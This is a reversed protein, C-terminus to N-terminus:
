AARQLLLSHATKVLVSFHQSKSIVASVGVSLALKKIFSDIYNSFIIIPLSPMSRRLIRAAEVGNLAPMSLDMIILDPHLRQAKEVAEWGNEAEGCIRFGGERALM